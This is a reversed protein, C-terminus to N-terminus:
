KNQFFDRTARMCFPAVLGAHYSDRVAQDGAAGGGSAARLLAKATEFALRTSGYQDVIIGSELDLLTLGPSSMGHAKFYDATATANQFPVVPDQAGGCLLVPVAPVYGRLDNKVLWKRLTHTPMCNLPDASNVGCPHSNMDALYGDRYSTKVLNGAGFFSAYGDGQPLSDRAFLVDNPLTGAAVLDGLSSAGPLLDAIGAAYPAEYIDSTSTYLGANAHQGANILMPLFAAAGLTPKGGFIADGFQALAYPGSMPAVATVTFEGPYGTQMARQTALAVYGGQSYGTLLLQSSPHAGIATFVKRAARLGDVMDSSQQSADLYSHYSLSSGAYGAYDPAVVIYGQAAYMAAVLRPEMASLDSMDNRKLVSTGHAYLLVPRNGTCASDTGSPVMIATAADTDEGAGGVTHYKLTFTTVACTPTGTITSSGKQAAELLQTFAAPQLTTVSAGNVTVPVPAASGILTGRLTTPPPPAVIVGGDSTQGSSGGGGGCATLLALSLASACAYTLTSRSVPHRM